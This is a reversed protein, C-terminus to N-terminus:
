WKVERKGRWKFGETQLPLRKGVGGFRNEVAPPMERVRAVLM